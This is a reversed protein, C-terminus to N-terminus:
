LMTVNRDYVVTAISLLIRLRLHSHTMGTQITTHRSRVLVTIAPVTTIALDHCGYGNQTPDAHFRPSIRSQTLNVHFLPSLIKRSHHTPLLSTFSTDDFFRRTLGKITPLVALPEMHYVM